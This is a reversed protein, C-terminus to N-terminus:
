RAIPQPNSKLVELAGLRYLGEAQRYYDTLIIRAQEAFANVAPLGGKQLQSSLGTITGNKDILFMKTLINTVKTTHSLQLNILQSSYKRVERIANANTVVLEKDKYASAVCGILAKNTIQDLSTPNKTTQTLEPTYVSKMIRLFDDYKSRTAQSVKPENKDITDFFLQHLLRLSPVSTTIASEYKPVSDKIGAVGESLCIYSKVQLGQITRPQMVPSLLQIARAIAYAKPRAKMYQIISAYKLGEPVGGEDGVTPALGRETVGKRGLIEELGKGRDTEKSVATLVTSIVDAVSRNGQESLYTTGRKKKFIIAETTSLSVDNVAIQEIRMTFVGTENSELRFSAEVTVGSRPRFVLNKDDDFYFFIMNTATNPNISRSTTGTDSILLVDTHGTIPYISDGILDNINGLKSVLNGPPRGGRMRQFLPPAQYGQQGAMPFLAARYNVSTAQTEPLADAVTLALAGFVQFIRVYFFALQGCLSDRYAKEAPHKDPEDQFTLHKVSEFLLTDSGMRPDLRIQKMFKLLAQQTLFIYQSCQKPNSLKLIDQFEANGLMWVFINNTLTETSITKGRYSDRGPLGVPISQGAGM